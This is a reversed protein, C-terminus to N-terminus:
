ILAYVLGLSFLCSVSYGVAAAAGKSSTTSSSSAASSSAGTTSSTKSAGSTSSASSASSSGSTSSASAGSSSASSSSSQSSALSTSGTSGGTYATYLSLYRSHFSLYLSARESYITFYESDKGGSATSISSFKSENAAEESSYSSILQLYDELDSSATPYDAESTVSVLDFDVLDSSEITVTQPDATIGLQLFEGIFGSLLSRATVDYNGSTEFSATSAYSILIASNEGFHDPDVTLVLGHVALAQALIHPLKFQM